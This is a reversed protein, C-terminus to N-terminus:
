LFFYIMIWRKFVKSSGTEETIQLKIINLVESKAAQICM